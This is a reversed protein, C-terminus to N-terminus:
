DNEIETNDLLNHLPPIKDQEVIYNGLWERCGCREIYYMVFSGNKYIQFPPTRLVFDEIYDELDSHSMSDAWYWCGFEKQMSTASTKSYFIVAYVHRIGITLPLRRPLREYVVSRILWYGILSVVHPSLLSVASQADHTGLAFTWLVERCDKPWEKVDRIRDM